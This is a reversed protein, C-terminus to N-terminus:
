AVVAAAGAVADVAALASAAGAAAVAAGAASADVDSLRATSVVPDPQRLQRPGPEEGRLLQGVIRPLVM